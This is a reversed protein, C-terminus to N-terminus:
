FPPLPRRCLPCEMKQAAWTELCSTHAIHHCPPVQVVGVNAHEGFHPTNRWDSVMYSLRNAGRKVGSIVDGVAGSTEKDAVRQDVSLRGPALEIAELCIICDVERKGDAKGSSEIDDPPLAPHYDWTEQEEFWVGRPLFFRPGFWDQLFLVIIQFAQWAVLGFVWPSTETFLLNQPCTWVYLPIFLRVASTAVVYQKLLAHRSTGREANHYIQPVISAILIRKTFSDDRERWFSYALTLLLPFWGFLM